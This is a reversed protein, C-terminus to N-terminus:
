GSPWVSALWVCHTSNVETMNNKETILNPAQQCACKPLKGECRDQNKVMIIQWFINKELLTSIPCKAWIYSYFRICYDRKFILWLLLLGQLLTISHM